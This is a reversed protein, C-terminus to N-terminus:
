VDLVVILWSLMGGAGSNVLAGPTLKYVQLYLPGIMSFQPMAALTPRVPAGRHGLPPQSFAQFHPRIQQPDHPNACSCVSISWTSYYLLMTLFNIMLRLDRSGIMVDFVPMHNNGTAHDFRSIILVMQSHVQLCQQTTVTSVEMDHITM